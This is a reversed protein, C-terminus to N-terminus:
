RLGGNERLDSVKGALFQYTALDDQADRRGLRSRAMARNYHFRAEDSNLDIAQGFDAEAAEYQHAKFYACGRNYYTDANAEIDISDTFAEIAEQYWQNPPTAESSSEHTQESAQLSDGMEVCATALNYLLTSNEPTIELADQFTTIATEFCGLKLHANGLYIYVDIREAETTNATNEFLGRATTLDEIANKFDEHHYHAKGRLCYALCRGGRNEPAYKEALLLFLSAEYIAGPFNGGEWYLRSRTLSLRVLECFVSEIAKEADGVTLAERIHEVTQDFHTMLQTPSSGGGYISISKLAVM